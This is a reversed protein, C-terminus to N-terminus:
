PFHAETIQWGAVLSRWSTMIFRSRAPQNLRLCSKGWKAVKEESEMQGDDGRSMIYERQEQLLSSPPVTLKCLLM